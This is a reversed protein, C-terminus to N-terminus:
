IISLEKNEPEEIIKIKKFGVETKKVRKKAMEIEEEIVRQIKEYEAKGLHNSWKEKLNKLEDM